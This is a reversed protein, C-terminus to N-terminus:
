QQMVAKRTRVMMLMVMLRVIKVLMVINIVMQVTTMVLLLIMREVVCLRRIVHVVAGFHVIHRVALPMGHVSLQVGHVGGVPVATFVRDEGVRHHMVIRRRGDVLVVAILQRGVHRVTTALIGGMRQVLEVQGATYRHGITVHDHATVSKRDDVRTRGRGDFHRAGLQVVNLFYVATILRDLPHATQLRHEVQEVRGHFQQGHEGNGVTGVALTQPGNGKSNCNTPDSDEGVDEDPHDGDNTVDHEDWTLM